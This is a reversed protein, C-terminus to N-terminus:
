RGCAMCHVHPKSICTCVPCPLYMCDVFNLGCPCRFPEDIGQEIIRRVQAIQERRRIVRAAIVTGILWGISAHLLWDWNM